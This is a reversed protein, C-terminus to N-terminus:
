HHHFDNPTNQWKDMVIYKNFPMAVIVKNLGLQLNLCHQPFDNIIKKVEPNSIRNLLQNGYTQLQAYLTEFAEQLYDITYSKTQKSGIPLTMNKESMDSM